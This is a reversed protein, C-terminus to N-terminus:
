KAPGGRRELICDAQIPSQAKNPPLRMTARYLAYGPRSCTFKVRSRAIDRPINIKFRGADDTVMVYTMREVDLRVTVDSLLKGDRDKMSGFYVNVATNPPSAPDFAYLQAMSRAAIAALM